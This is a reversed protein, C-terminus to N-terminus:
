LTPSGYESLTVGGLPAASELKTAYKTVILGFLPKWPETVKTGEIVGVPPVAVMLLEVPVVTGTLPEVGTVNLTVTPLPTVPTANLAAVEVPPVFPKLSEVPVLLKVGPAGKVIVTPDPVMLKNLEPLAVMGTVTLKLPVYAPVTVTVGGEMLPNVPIEEIEEADPTAVLPELWTVKVTVVLELLALAVPLVKVNVPLSPLPLLL